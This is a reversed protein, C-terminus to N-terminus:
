PNRRSLEAGLRALHARVTAPEVVDVHDAWGALGRALLLETPATLRLQVRGADLPTVTISSEGFRERLFPLAELDVIAEAWARERQQSVERLVTEWAATLDFDAPRHAPQDTVAAEVIRDVRYTRQAGDVGGLLYWVEGKEVLGWPDVLREASKRDWGRYTLRVKRRQVVAAQLEPVLPPQARPPRGWRAPDIVVAGAAAEAEARFTAPLARVLKRLAAKADPVVDAAPGVLLFLARTEASTLGSLDTRGGGLLQWGGGRGAQSYVPIGAASLAELDRRSTAVSTELEAAIEAATARGRAQLLLLTAVLRDARM